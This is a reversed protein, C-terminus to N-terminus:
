RRVDTVRAELLDKTAVLAGAAFWFYLALISGAATLGSEVLCVGIGAVLAGFLAAKLDNSPGSIGAEFAIVIPVVLLLLGFPGVELIAQLYANHVSAGQFCQTGCQTTDISAAREGFVQDGSGLGWGTLPREAMLDGAIKWAAFRGADAGFVATRRVLPPALVAAAALALCIVSGAFLLRSRWPMAPRRLSFAALGLGAALFGGRSQSLALSLLSGLALCRWAFRKLGESRLSLMALMPLAMGASVGITNPNQLLGRFRGHGLLGFPDDNFAYDIGLFFLPLGLVLSAGAVVSLVEVDKYIQRESLWRFLLGSTVFSALVLFGLGDQLSLFADSSWVTSLLLFLAAVSLWRVFAERRSSRTLRGGAINMVVALGYLAFKGYFSASRLALPLGGATANISSLFVAIGIGLLLGHSANKLFLVTGLVLGVVLFVSSGDVTVLVGAIAGLALAGVGFAPSGYPRALITTM